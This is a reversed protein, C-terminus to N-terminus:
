IICIDFSNLCLVSFFFLSVFFREDFRTSAASNIIFDIEECMGNMLERDTIGLNVHSVDGSVPIVKESLFFSFDKGWKKRLVDFLETDIIQM